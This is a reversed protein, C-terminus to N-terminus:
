TLFDLTKNKSVFHLKYQHAFCADGGDHSARQTGAAAATLLSAPQGLATVGFGTWFVSFRYM